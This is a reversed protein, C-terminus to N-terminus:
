RAPVERMQEVVQEYLREMTGSITTFTRVEDPKSSNEAAVAALHWGYNEAQAQSFLLNFEFNADSSLLLDHEKSKATGDRAATE